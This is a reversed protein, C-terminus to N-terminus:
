FGKSELFGKVEAVWRGKIVLNQNTPKVTVVPAPRLPDVHIDKMYLALEDRLGM